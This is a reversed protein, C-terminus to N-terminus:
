PTAVDVFWVRYDRPSRASVISIAAHTGAVADAGVTVRLTSTRGNNMLMSSFSTTVPMTGQATAASLVWDRGPVESWASLRFDVSEGPAVHQATTPSATVGFYPSGAVAPVCPDRGERAARNSWSRQAAHGGERVFQLPTVCLDAVEIGCGIGFTWPDTESPYTQWAPSSIPFADTAAEILEHSAFVETLELRSLEIPAPCSAVVAYAFDLGRTHAELHYAGFEVCSTVPTAPEGCTGLSDLHVTTEAPVYVMFLASELGEPPTPISGDVIGAALLEQIELDTIDSPAPGPLSAGGGVTGAGIGYEAGVERLWESGVIWSAFADLAGRRADGGYTVTVVAPHSLRRGGQDDVQLFPEHPAPVFVDSPAADPTRWADATASSADPQDLSGGDELPTPADCGLLTVLLPTVTVFLPALSTPAVSLPIRPATM